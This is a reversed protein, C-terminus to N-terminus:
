ARRSQYESVLDRRLVKGVETRPLADIRCFAVPVKYAVLHARCLARLEEDTADGV